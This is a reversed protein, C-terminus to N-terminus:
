PGLGIHEPDEYHWGRFSFYRHLNDLPIEDGVSWDEMINAVHRVADFIQSAQEPELDFLDENHEGVRLNQLHGQIFKKVTEPNGCHLVDVLQFPSAVNGDLSRVRWAPDTLSTRGIKVGNGPSYAAYVFGVLSKPVETRQMTAVEGIRGGLEEETQNDCFFKSIMKYVGKARNRPLFLSLHFCEEDTIVWTPEFFGPVSAKRCLIDKVDKSCTGRLLDKITCQAEKRTKHCVLSIFDAAAMCSGVGEVLVKVVQELTPVGKFSKFPGSPM